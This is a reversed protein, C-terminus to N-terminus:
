SNISTSGLSRDISPSQYIDDSMLNQKLFYQKKKKLNKSERANFLLCMIFLLLQQVGILVFVVWIYVSADSIGFRFASIASAPISFLLMPISLSGVSQNKFTEFIQPVWQFVSLIIALGQYVTTLVKTKSDDTGYYQIFFVLVGLCAIVEILCYLVFIFRYIGISKNKNLPPDRGHYANFLVFVIFIDMWNTANVLFNILLKLCQWSSSDCCENMTHWDSSLAHLVSFYSGM